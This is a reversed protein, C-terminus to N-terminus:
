GLTASTRARPLGPAATKIGRLGLTTLTVSAQEVLLHLSTATNPYGLSFIPHATQRTSCRPEVTGQSGVRPMQMLLLKRSPVSPSCQGCTEGRGGRAGEEDEPRRDSRGAERGDREKVRQM